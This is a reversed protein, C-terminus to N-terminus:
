KIVIKIKQALIVSTTLAHNLLISKLKVPPKMM